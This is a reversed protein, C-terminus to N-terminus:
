QRSTVPLWMHFPTFSTFTMTYTIDSSPTTITHAAAGGDSWHDFVWWSVTGVPQPNLAVVNLAYSVWSTISQTATLPVNNVTLQLGDPQSAFTM